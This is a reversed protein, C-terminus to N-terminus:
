PSQQSEESSDGNDGHDAPRHSQAPGVLDLAVAGPIHGLEISARGRDAVEPRLELSGATTEPPQPGQLTERCPHASEDPPSGRLWADFAAQEAPPGPDVTFVDYLTM